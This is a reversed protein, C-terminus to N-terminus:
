RKQILANEQATDCYIKVTFNLAKITLATEKSHMIIYM